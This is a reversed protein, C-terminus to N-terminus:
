INLYVTVQFLHFVSLVEEFLIRLIGKYPVEIQCKGHFKLLDKHKEESQIGHILESRLVSYPLETEFKIPLFKQQEDNYYYPFFRYNFM